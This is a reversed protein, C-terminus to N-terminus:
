TPEPTRSLSEMRQEIERQMAPDERVATLAEEFSLGQKMLANMREFRPRWPADKQMRAFLEEASLGESLPTGTWVPVTQPPHRRVSGDPLLEVTEITDRRWNGDVEGKQGSIITTRAPQADMAIHNFVTYSDGWDVKRVFTRYLSRSGDERTFEIAGAVEKGHPIDRVQWDLMKPPEPGTDATPGFQAASEVQMECFFAVVITKSSEFRRFYLYLAGESRYHLALEPLSAPIVRDAASEQEALQDLIAQIRRLKELAAQSHEVERQLQDFDGRATESLQVQYAM